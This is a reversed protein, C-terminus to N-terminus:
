LLWVPAVFAFSGGVVYCGASISLTWASFRRARTCAKALKPDAPCPQSRQWWLVGASLAILVGAVVFLAVKREALWILQPFASTLGAFAAGAGLSVLIAPLACCLLTSASGFLSLVPAVSGWWPNNPPATDPETHTTM